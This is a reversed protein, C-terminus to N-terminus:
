ILDCSEQKWAQKKVTFTKAPFLIDIVKVQVDKIVNPEQLQPEVKFTFVYNHKLSVLNYRFIRPVM